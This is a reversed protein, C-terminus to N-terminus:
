RLHVVESPGAHKCEFTAPDRDAVEVPFLMASRLNSQDRSLFLELKKSQFKHIRPEDFYNQILKQDGWFGEQYKSFELLDTYTKEKPEILMIASNFYDNYMKEHWKQRHTESCSFDNLIGWIQQGDRTDYDTFVHDLNKQVVIDMDLHLLKQYKTLNFESLKQPHLKNRISVKGKLWIMPTQGEGDGVEVIEIGPHDKLKENNIMEPDNTVIVYPYKSGSKRLMDDISFIMEPGYAKHGGVPIANLAREHKKLNKVEANFVAENMYTSVYAFRGKSSATPSQKKDLMVKLASTPSFVM